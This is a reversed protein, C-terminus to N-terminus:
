KEKVASVFCMQVIRWTSQMAFMRFKGNNKDILQEPHDFEVVEGNEMLLVRDSGIITELRHAITLITCDKFNAKITRQILKDTEDDINSTIEDLLLIKTKRILARGLSILQRQGISFNSGNESIMCNLKGPLSDITDKLSVDELVKWLTKDSSEKLPDLNKRLTGTFLVVDQPIITLHNRLSKLSIEQIDQDDILIKGEFPEIIRLLSLALTSKGSGTRGIIGIKEQPKIEFNLNKLVIKESMSYKLSFNKFEIKGNKIKLEKSNEANRDENPLKSYEMIREVSIMQKEIDTIMTLGWVVVGILSTEQTMALGRDGISNTSNEFLVFSFIVFGIFVASTVDAFFCFGRYYTMSTFYASSSVNQHNAFNELIKKKGSMARITALGNLTSRLHTLINSSAENEIEQLM